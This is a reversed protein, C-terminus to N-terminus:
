LYKEVAWGGAFQISDPQIKAGKEPDFYLAPQGKVLDVLDGMLDALVVPRDLERAVALPSM